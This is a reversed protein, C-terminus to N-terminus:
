ENAQTRKLFGPDYVLKRKLKDFWAHLAQKPLRVYGQGDDQFSALYRFLHEAVAAGLEKPDDPRSEDMGLVFQESELSCGLYVWEEDQALSCDRERRTWPAALVISPRQSSVYGLYHWKNPERAYYLALATHDPLPATLAVSLEGSPCLAPLRVQFKRYLPPDLAEFSSCLYQGPILVALPPGSM